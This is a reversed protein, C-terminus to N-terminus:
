TAVLGVVIGIRRELSHLLLELPTKGKPGQILENIKGLETAEGTAVVVRRARGSTVLTGSFAMSTQDALVSDHPVPHSQKTVPMNEGTLMSEDITLSASQVVRLDAPVRDGSELLVVDGPVVDE